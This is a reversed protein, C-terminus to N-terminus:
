DAGPSDISLHWGGLNRIEALLEDFKTPGLDYSEEAVCDFYGSPQRWLVSELIISLPMLDDEIELGVWPAFPLAFIRNVACYRTEEPSNSNGFDSLDMTVDVQFCGRGLKYKRRPESFIGGPPAHLRRMMERVYGKRWGVAGQGKLIREYGKLLEDNSLSKISRHRTM